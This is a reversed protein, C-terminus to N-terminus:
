MGGGATLAGNQIFRIQVKKAADTAGPMGILLVTYVKNQEVTITRSTDIAATANKVAISVDGPAVAKFESVAGLSASENVVSNAGASITVAPKNVSDAIANIYRIYANGQTTSLSDFHDTSIINRYNNGYGVVFVSYYKNAEFNFSASALSNNGQANFSQVTRDGPYINQYAGTFNTYDLPSQTLSNGSLTIVVASQDPALNFGMLGAVPTQANNNDNNKLCATFLMGAAAVGLVMAIGRRLGSLVKSM